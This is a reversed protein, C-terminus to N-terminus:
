RRNTNENQEETLRLSEKALAALLTAAAEYSDYPSWVPYVGPPLLEMMAETKEEQETM